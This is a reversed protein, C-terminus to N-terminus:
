SFCEGNCTVIRGGRYFGGELEAELKLKLIDNKIKLQEESDDSFKEGNNLYEGM